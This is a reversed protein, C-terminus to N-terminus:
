LNLVPASIEGERGSVTVTGPTGGARRVTLTWKEKKKDWKMNGYGVVRLDASLGLSSVAEVTLLDQRAAYEARIVAITLDYGNCDQDIGDFATEPEGPHVGADGDDCDQPTGCDAEAFFGDGDADTCANAPQLRQLAAYADIMGYGSDNDPGELGLDVASGTLAQELEDATVGPNFSLLLAMTGAVHPAAFSTGSVLAYPDPVVGGFSLDSTRVGVGPAVVEPYLSGDCASPGRSSSYDLNQAGDVAGAAFGGPNNAPSSSTGANPGDNGAAFVVAIGAARLLALDVEFETFCDGATGPIGWSNLVVDPADDTAPDGDPELLWQLGLHIGSLTAYGADNFIKVAIWRAGPAVGIATGGASGGVALGMTQTGHGFPDSPAAHEGNPDYWSNAGGRWNGVLDPHQVDVGTDLGAVVTGSGTAGLAWLEPAGIADLNWEPGGEPVPEPEPEPKPEPKKLLADLGIREVGALAALERVTEPPASFALGNIAWLRVTAGIGRSRLLAQLPPQTRDAKGHLAQVLAARNGRGRFRDPDVRDALTLIVPVTEGAPLNRLAEELAPDITGAGALQAALAILFAASVLSKGITGIRSM